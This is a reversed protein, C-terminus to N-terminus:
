ANVGLQVASSTHALRETLRHEVRGIQSKIETINQVKEGSLSNYHRIAEAVELDNVEYHGLGLLELFDHWETKNFSRLKEQEIVTFTSDKYLKQLTEKPTKVLNQIETPWKLVSDKKIKKEDIYDQLARISFYLRNRYDQFTIAGVFDRLGIAQARLIAKPDIESIIRDRYQMGKDIISYTIPDKFTDSLIDNHDNTYINKDNDRIQNQWNSINGNYNIWWDLGNEGNSNFVVGPKYDEARKLDHKFTEIGEQTKEPANLNPRLGSDFIKSVGVKIQFGGKLYLLFKKPIAKILVESDSTFGEYNASLEAEPIDKIATRLTKDNEFTKIQFVFNDQDSYFKDFINILNVLPTTGLKIAHGKSVSLRVVLKTPSKRERFAHFLADLYNVASSYNKAWNGSTVLVIQDTKIKKVIELIHRKKDLPEGGGSVLLYGLNAKEAFKIVKEIGEDSFQDEINEKRWVPSSKFFCFPCGVGCFRTLFLCVLSKGGFKQKEFDLLNNKLILERFYISRDFFNSGEM